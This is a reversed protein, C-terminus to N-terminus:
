NDIINEMSIKVEDIEVLEKLTNTISEYIQKQEETNETKLESSFDLIAKSGEVKASNLKTEKPIVAELKENKPGEILMNVLTEYPNNILLKVDILRAEPMIDKTEKNRFYLTVLTQREQEESIEEQPTYELIEEEPIFSKIILGVGIIIIITLFIYLFIKGKM